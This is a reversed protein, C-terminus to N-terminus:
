GGWEERLAEGDPLDARGLGREAKELRQALDPDQAQARELEHATLELGRALFAALGALGGSPRARQLFELAQASQAHRGRPLALLFAAGLSRALPAGERARPDFQDGASFGALPRGGPDAAILRHVIAALKPAM